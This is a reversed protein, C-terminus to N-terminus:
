FNHSIIDANLSRSPPAPALMQVYTLGFLEQAVSSFAHGTSPVFPESGMYPHFHDGGLHSAM